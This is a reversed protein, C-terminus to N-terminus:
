AARERLDGLLIFGYGLLVGASVVWPMSGAFLAPLVVQIAVLVALLLTVRRMSGPVLLWGSSLRGREQRSRHRHYAARQVYGFGLGIATGVLIGCLALVLDNM